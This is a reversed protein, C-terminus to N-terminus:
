KGMSFYDVLMATNANMSIMATNEMKRLDRSVIVNMLVVQISVILMSVVNMYISKANMLILVDVM